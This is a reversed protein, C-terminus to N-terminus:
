CPLQHQDRLSVCAFDGLYVDVWLLPRDDVGTWLPALMILVVPHTESISCVKLVQEKGVRALEYRDRDFQQGKGKSISVRGRPRLLEHNFTQLDIHKDM